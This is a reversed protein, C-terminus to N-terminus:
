IDLKGLRSLRAVSYWSVQRFYFKGARVGYVVWKNSHRSPIARYM